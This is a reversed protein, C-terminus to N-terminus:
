SKRASYGRSSVQQPVLGKSLPWELQGAANGLGVQSAGRVSRCRSRKCSGSRYDICLQPWPLEETQEDMPHLYKCDKGRYCLNRLFDRCVMPRSGGSGSGSGGGGGGGGNGGMMDHDPGAHPSRSRDNHHERDGRERNRERERDRQVLDPRSARADKYEETDVPPHAFKCDKRNCTYFIYDRCLNSPVRYRSRGLGRERGSSANNNIGDGGGSSCNGDISGASLDNGAANGSGAALADTSTASMGTESREAVFKGEKGRSSECGLDEEEDMASDSHPKTM